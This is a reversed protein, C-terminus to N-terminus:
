GASDRKSRRVYKAIRECSEADYHDIGNITVSPKLGLAAVAEAIRAYPQQLSACLHAATELHNTGNM